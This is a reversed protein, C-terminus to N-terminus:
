SESVTDDAARQNEKWYQLWLNLAEDESNEIFQQPAEQAAVIKKVKEAIETALHELEAAMQETTIKEADIILTIFGGGEEGEKGKFYIRRVTKFDRTEVILKMQRGEKRNQPEASRQNKFVLEKNTGERCM